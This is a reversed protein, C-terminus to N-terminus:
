GETVLERASPLVFEPLNPPAYKGTVLFVIANGTRDKSFVSQDTFLHYLILRFSFVESIQSCDDDCQPGLSYSDIFPIGNITKRHIRSPIEPINLSVSRWFGVIRMNWDWDLFITDPKLDCHIFYRSDLFGMALAIRAIEFAGILHYKMVPNRLLTLSCTIVRVKLLIACFRMTSFVLNRDLAVHSPRLPYFLAVLCVKLHAQAV